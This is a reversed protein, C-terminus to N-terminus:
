VPPISYLPKLTCTLLNKSYILDKLNKNKLASQLKKIAKISANNLKILAFHFSIIM